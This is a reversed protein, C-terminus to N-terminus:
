PRGSSVQARDTALRRAAREVAALVPDYVPAYPPAYSLDLAAVEDLSMGAHLATAFVDIRKATLPDTSIMQAGLLRGDRGAVVRVSVPASGPYYKARSRHTVDTASADFGADTAEALTLGTRAITLDFVKVVATGVIGGFRDDGGAAVTGAVRGTKNATTGLPVFAPQGTVLHPVAVCDGAALVRPVSTRMREDVLVAGQATVSAGSGTLLQGQPQAGVALIVADVPLREDGVTAELTDGDRTLDALGSGLRLDAHRRVEAEVLEAPEPDYNVLVRDLREVLTVECGALVLAEAAELGIYGCGVVLAARIRGADLLARLRQADELTRLTFVADDDAWPVPPRVPAAGATVVLDGYGLETTIGDAEATVVRRDVDVALAATHLRLDIGRDERFVSPPHAILDSAEDVVGALYYPLGCLGWAAYGTRELVTIERGPDVRRAASAASMGAAGGGIVLIREDV